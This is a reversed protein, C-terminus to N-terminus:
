SYTVLAVALLVGIAAVVMTLCLAFRPARLPEGKRLSEQMALWRQHALVSIVAGAIIPILSLPIRIPAPGMRQGLQALAVGGAILGLSTRTWALFTRENAL